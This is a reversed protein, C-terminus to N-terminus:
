QFLHSNFTIINSYSYISIIYPPIYYAFYSPKLQLCVVPPPYFPFISWTPHKLTQSIVPEKGSTAKEGAALLVFSFSLILARDYATINGAQQDISPIAEPCVIARRNLSHEPQYSLLCHQYSWVLTPLIDTRINHLIHIEISFYRVQTPVSPGMCCVTNQSCAQDM